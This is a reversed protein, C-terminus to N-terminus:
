EKPVGELAQEGGFSAMKNNLPFKMFKSSEMYAKIKPLAEFRDMFATLKPYDNLITPELIRHHDLIEYVPFDAVTLKDGAFFQRDGLFDEFQKLKGKCMEIYPERMKKFTPGYCLRTFGSRFDAIENLMMDVRIQEVDSEGLLNYKRGVYRLITNSQTIKVDGSMYYPLNPFDLGMTNKIDMWSSRDYNPAPGCTYMRDEFDEGVYNLLLRIPQALGRIDWYALVATM